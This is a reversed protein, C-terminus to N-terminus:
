LSGLEALMAEVSYPKFGPAGCLGVDISPKGSTSHNFRDSEPSHLHGHIHYDIKTGRPLPTDPHHSLFLTKGDIVIIASELM